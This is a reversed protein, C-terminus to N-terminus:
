NSLMDSIMDNSYKISTKTVHCHNLSVSERKNILLQYKAEFAKYKELDLVM